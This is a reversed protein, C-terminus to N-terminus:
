EPEFEIEWNNRLSELKNILCSKQIDDPSVFIPILDGNRKNSIISFDNTLSKGLIKQGNIEYEYHVTIRQGINLIPLGSNPIMSVIKAKKVEGLKCLNLEKRMHHLSYFLFPLGILLFPIPFFLLFGTSFEYPKIGKIIANGKFEMIEIEKGIKLSAIKTEELVRYKSNVKQGNSKYSFSIITPHVGNITINYQTDIDIIQAKKEEGKAYVLDYDVSPADNAISSFAILLIIVLFLPILTFLCGLLMPIPRKKLINIITSLKVQRTIQNM